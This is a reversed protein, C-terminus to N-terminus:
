MIMNKLHGTLLRVIQDDWNTGKYTAVIRGM